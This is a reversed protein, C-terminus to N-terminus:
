DIVEARVYNAVAAEGGLAELSDYLIQLTYRPNHAFAGPDKSIYQYNYAAGLLNPTWDVYRTESSVEGEDVEGNGNGDIFWYPYMSADYIIPTGITDAAYAQIVALLDAHLAEIEAAIPEEVDGDGDYDVPDDDLLEEDARILRVDAASTIDVNEHCNSCGEYRVELSHENHCDVCEDFRRVHEFRGSYENGEYEYAGQAETGFLTAGAAFYHPNRFNLEDSVEHPGVGARAIAANISVTSERGQHCNLCLNSEAGEGFSIVAGSPFTVEDLERVLFEGTSVGEHCTTCSLSDSPERAILVNHELFFPLGDATHCKTCAAAVEGEVDWHRFAEATSDFHGPDDRRAQGLDVPEGLQQNLFDISDYLLEIHYKANHAYNGPDKLSVQYNYTAQLLLPTFESFANDRNVEDEDTVGNNNTDIFFYPHSHEDYVIPTGVVESAYAQIAQYLMEQLTEIEGAIGERTNGDGDYDILSGEMRIDRLDSARSVELHCTSCEDIRVELTHPNHCDVCTEVGETHRFRKQYGRGDFEYGGHVESGYLSAAAAYYHINIFSLEESVQNVDETLGAREIAANVANASARGQHCVMCRASENLDTIEVGSPFTVSTLHSAASNHCADCNIVTGIPAAADVTGFDSGDEGLFDLYGPTSHCRACNDPIEGEADWHVFAEAMADAHASGLWDDYFSRLFTPPEGVPDPPTEQAAAPLVMVFLALGATVFLIGGLVLLRELKM